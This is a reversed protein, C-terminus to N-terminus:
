GAPGPIAAPDLMGARRWGTRLLHFQPPATVPEGCLVRDTRVHRSWGAFHPASSFPDVWDHPMKVGRQAAHKRANSLVYALGHRVERPTGLARAHYRETFLSGTLGFLKHLRKVLRVKLGQMGRSLADRGDAEVIFHLHNSLVSFQVVRFFEKHAAAICGRLHRWTRPRRLNPVRDIM